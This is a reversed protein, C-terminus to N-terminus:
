PDSVSGTHSIKTSLAQTSQEMQGWLLAMVMLKKIKM